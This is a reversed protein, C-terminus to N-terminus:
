VPRVYDKIKGKVDSWLAVLNGHPHHVVFAPYFDLPEGAPDNVSGLTLGRNQEFWRYFNDVADIKQRETVGRSSELLVTIANEVRVLQLPTSM